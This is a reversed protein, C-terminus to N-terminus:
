VAEVCEADSQPSQERDREGSGGGAHLLLPSSASRPSPSPAPSLTPITNELGVLWAQPGDQGNTPRTGSRSTLWDVGAFANGDGDANDFDRRAVLGTPAESLHQWSAGPM